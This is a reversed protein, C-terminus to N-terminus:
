FSSSFYFTNLEIIPYKMIISRWRPIWKFKLSKIAFKSYYTM